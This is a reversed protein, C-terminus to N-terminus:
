LKHGWKSGILIVSFLWILKNQIVLPGFYAHIFDNAHISTLNLSYGLSICRDTSHMVTTVSLYLCPSIAVLVCFTISLSHFQFDNNLLGSLLLVPNLSFPSSLQMKLKSSRPQSSILFYNTSTQQKYFDLLQM